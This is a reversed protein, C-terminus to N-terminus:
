TIRREEASKFAELLPVRQLVHGDVLYVRYEAWDGINIPKWGEACLHRQRTREIFRLKLLRNSRDYERAQAAERLDENERQLEALEAELDSLESM